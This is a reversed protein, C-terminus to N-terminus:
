HLCGQCVPRLLLTGAIYVTFSERLRQRLHKLLVVIGLGRGCPMLHARWGCQLIVHCLRRPGPVSILDDEQQVGIASEFLVDQLRPDTAM